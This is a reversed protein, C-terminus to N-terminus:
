PASPDSEVANKTVILSFLPRSFVSDLPPERDSVLQRTLVSEGRWPIPQVDCLSAVILLAHKQGVGIALIKHHGDRVGRPPQSMSPGVTAM